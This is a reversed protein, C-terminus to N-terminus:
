RLSLFRGAIHCKGFVTAGQIKKSIEFEQASDEVGCWTRDPSYDYAACAV